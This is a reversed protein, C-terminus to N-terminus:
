DKEHYLEASYSFGEGYGTIEEVKYTDLEEPTFDREDHAIDQSQLSIKIDTQNLWQTVVEDVDDDPITKPNTMKVFQGATM